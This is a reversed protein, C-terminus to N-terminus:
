INFWYTFKAILARNRISFDHTMYNDTFVVFFDSAPQFRWQFRANINLNDLQNNYQVFTTLFVNRTFTLDVRPGILFLSATAYPDPLSIRNASVNFAVMSYPQLRLTITGDVGYRTGNFFQGLYPELQASIIKSQDTRIEAAFNTYSYESGNLLPTADTRTPDFDNFLLTYQNQLSLRINSNDRLQMEYFVDILHDTRGLGRGWFIDYSIGPGHQNLLKGDEGYFILQAQPTIRFYDNRPVFGVQADYGAGVYEHVWEFQYRPHMHTIRAGHAFSKDTQEPTIAHHYFIKGTWQNDASALNYDVGMLRNYNSTGLSFEDSPGTLIQKNVFIFGVNSRSFIRHQLAAVSYNFSPLDSSEVKATQMNLFGVRLKENLKGSLRLGGYIQNQINQGTVTDRAVGIRRSFFPRLRSSGFSAFLDANELFFQRREPFFLEFRDLNTIQQDVEVQSFDPNVTVDLNLSPTIAIKADGGINFKSNYSKEGEEFDRDAGGAIYPILSVNPGPKKLPKDWIIEGMFALNMIIQNRPIRIWSSRENKHTEFRYSNFRWRTSGEKYRLTKFPIAFEAIWYKNYRQTSSYWKNDWATNFDGSQSGGNAILAERQVGYPNTGFVFANMGDNFTDFLLTINDNGGARYDRRLSPTVYTDSGAYCKAAVYLFEDDYTMYIETQYEAQTSDGPFYQWFKHATSGKFWADELHGDLKISYQTKKIYVPDQQYKNQALITTCIVAMFFTIHLSRHM